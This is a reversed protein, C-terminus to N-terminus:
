GPPAGYADAAAIAWDLLRAVVVRSDADLVGGAVRRSLESVVVDVLTNALLADAPALHAAAVKAVALEHLAAISASDSAAVTQIQVAVAKVDSARKVREADTKAGEIFKGTAYQVAIQQGVSNNPDQLFSCAPLAGVLACLMAVAAFARFNPLRPHFM